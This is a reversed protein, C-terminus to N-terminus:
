NGVPLIEGSDNHSDTHSDTHMTMESDSFMNDGSSNGAMFDGFQKRIVNAEEANLNMKAM